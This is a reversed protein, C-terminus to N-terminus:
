RTTAGRWFHWLFWGNWDFLQVSKTIRIAIDSEDGKNGKRASIYARTATLRCFISNGGKVTLFSPLTSDDQLVYGFSRRRSVMSAYNVGNVVLTGDTKGHYKRGAIVDLLTTKGAGSPGMIAYIGGDDMSVKGTIKHLVTKNDATSYKICGFM